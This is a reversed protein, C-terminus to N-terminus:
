SAVRPITWSGAFLLLLLANSDSFLDGVFLDIDGLFCLGFMLALESGIIVLYPRVTFGGILYLSHRRQWCFLIETWPFCWVILKMLLIIFM